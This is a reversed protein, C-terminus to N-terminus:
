PRAQKEFLDLFEQRSHVECKTYINKCHYKVTSESIFLKNAAYPISRGETLLLAIEAERNTFGCERALRDFYEQTTPGASGDQECLESEWSFISAGRQFRRYWTSAVYAAFLLNSCLFALLCMETFGFDSLGNAKLIVMLFVPLFRATYVIGFALAYLAIPPIAYFRTAQNCALILEISAITFVIYLGLTLAYGYLEDVFPFFLLAISIAPVYYRYFGDMNIHYRTREFIIATLVAGLILGINLPSGILKDVDTTDSLYLRIAQMVFAIVGITIAPMILALIGKKLVARREGFGTPIGATPKANRNCIVILMSSVPAILAIVLIRILWEPLWALLFYLAAGCATGGILGQADLPTGRTYLTHQWLVFNGSIGAGLLVGCLIDITVPSNEDMFALSLLAGLIVMGSFSFSAAKHFFAHLVREQFLLACLFWAIFTLCFSAGKALMFPSLPDDLAPSNSFVSAAGPWGVLSVVTFHLSYGLISLALFNRKSLAKGKFLSGINKTLGM